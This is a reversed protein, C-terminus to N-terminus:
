FIGMMITWNVISLETIQSLGTNEELKSSTNEIQFCRRRPIGSHKLVANM